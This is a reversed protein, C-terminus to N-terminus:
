VPGEGDGTTDTNVITLARMAVAPAATLVTRLGGPNGNAGNLKRDFPYGMPKADNYERKGTLRAQRGCYSVSHCEVEDHEVLDDEGDTMVVVLRFAMGDGPTGRPLLLRYPLGCDCWSREEGPVFAHDDENVIAPASADDSVSKRRIVTSYWSPRAVVTKAGPEITAVFKDMEIMRRRAQPDDGFLEEAVLFVRFMVKRAANRDTNEVRLYYVFHDDLALKRERTTADFLLQTRLVYNVGLDQPDRAWAAASGFTAAGYTKYDAGGANVTQWPVVILDPSQAGAGDAALTKRMRVAANAASLGLQNAPQADQWAFSVDDIRRHWRYFVPDTMATATTIMVAATQAAPDAFGLLVHGQNHLNAPRPDSAHATIGEIDAGLKEASAYKAHAVKDFAAKQARLTPTGAWAQAPLFGDPRPSFPPDTFVQRVWFPVPTAPVPDNAYADFTSAYPKVPELGVARRDTDYRALMQEHMYLFLEGHIPSDADVGGPYIVHWHDHHDSLDIDHRFYDMEPEPSPEEAEEAGAAFGREAAAGRQTAIERFTPIRVAVDPTRSAFIKFAHQVLAPRRRGLEREVADMVAHGAAEGAGQKALAGLEDALQQAEIIDDREFPSFPRQAEADGIGAAFGEARPARGAAPDLFLRDVRAQVSSADDNM